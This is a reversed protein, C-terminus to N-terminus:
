SLRDQIVLYVFTVNLLQYGIEGFTFTGVLGPIPKKELAFNFYNYLCSYSYEIRSKGERQLKDSLFHIYDTQVPKAIKYLTDRFVPAFFKVRKNQDDMMVAVNIKAGAYDAVLPLFLDDRKHMYNYFNTRVGNVFCDSISFGDQEFTVEDGNGQEYPNIIEIRGVKNAPLKIHLAVGKDTFKRSGLYTTPLAYGMEEFKSGSIWGLLPNIFQNEFEPSRIAFEELVKSHAPLIAIILSNEFADTTINGIDTSDYACMNYDAALNTLDKVYLLEESYMGGDKGLLYPNSGGIWYGDPLGALLVEAGAIILLKGQKILAATEAQTYLKNEM